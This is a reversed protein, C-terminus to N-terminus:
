KVEEIADLLEAKELYGNIEKVKEGNNYILLTPVSMIGNEIALDRFDDVDVKIINYENQIEELIPTLMKCPGCWEAYFDVIVLGNARGHDVDRFYTLSYGMSHVATTGTQSIVIGAVMSAYLFSRRDELTFVRKKLAEFVSAMCSISEIALADSLVNGRLTLMGEVAHSLADIATNITIEANLSMMYKPDCLAYKPFLCPAAISTKTKGLENTLIAYPTVESGTGATTPIHIM